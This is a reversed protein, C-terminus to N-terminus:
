ANSIISVSGRRNKETIGCTSNKKLWVRVSESMFIGPHSHITYSCFKQVHFSSTGFVWGCVFGYILFHMEQILIAPRNEFGGYFSHRFSNALDHFSVVQGSIIYCIDNRM